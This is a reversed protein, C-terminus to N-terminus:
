LIGIICIAFIGLFLGLTQKPSLREKCFFFSLLMSTLLTGGNFSPFFIIADLSGSLFINLRNYIFSLIGSVISFFIFKGKSGCVPNELKLGGYFLSIAFYSIVMVASSVLLMDTCHELNGTKGFAKFILGVIAAFCFFLLTYLKWKASFEGNSKKYTCLLISSFLMILGVIDFLSVAEKWIVLSVIVSIILSCNGILTTVSVPGTGMAATKSFIFLTQTIGYTIGWLLISKDFYIQGRKSVFLIVFWVAANLLSFKFIENKESVGARNLFLNNLSAALISVILLFLM